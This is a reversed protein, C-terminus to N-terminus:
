TIKYKEKKRGGPGPRPRHNQCPPRSTSWRRLFLSKVRCVDDVQERHRGGLFIAVVPHISILDVQSNEFRVDYGVVPGDKGDREREKIQFPLVLKLFLTSKITFSKDTM